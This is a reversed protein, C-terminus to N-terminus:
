DDVQFELPNYVFGAEGKGGVEGGAGARGKLANSIKLSSLRHIGRKRGYLLMWFTVERRPDVKTVDESDIKHIAVGSNKDRNTLRLWLISNTNNRLTVSTM